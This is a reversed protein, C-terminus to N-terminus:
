IRVPFIDDRQQTRSRHIKRHALREIRTAKPDDTNVELVSAVAINDSCALPGQTYTSNILIVKHREKAL